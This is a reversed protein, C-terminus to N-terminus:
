VISVIPAKACLGQREMGPGQGELNIAMQHHLICVSWSWFTGYNEMGANSLSEWPVWCQELVRLSVWSQRKGTIGPFALSGIERIWFSLTLLGMHFPFFPPLSLFPQIMALNTCVRFKAVRYRADTAAADTNSMTSLRGWDRSGTAYLTEM